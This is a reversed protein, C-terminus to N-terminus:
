YYWFWSATFSEQAEHNITRHNYKLNFANETDLSYTFFPEVTQIERQQSFWEDKGLLGFKLSSSPAYLLGLNASLSYDLDSKYYVTPTVTAYGFLTENGLTIGAGSEVYAYLKNKFIRKAGTSIQWSIPTFLQDQIAYSHIDILNFKKLILHNNDYELDTELFNIYAGPIFGNDNDYIDHYSFKTELHIKKNKEYGLTVRTSKHGKNPAIPEEVIQKKGKGLKSRHKLLKLFLPLYAKKSITGEQQKIKLLATALELAAIKKEKSLRSIASLNYDDSKAFALATPTQLIPNSLALITKHKSPRYTTNQVLNEDMIARITDLPIAKYNFQQTLNISPKAVELLWLLNYSCNEALFFYDSYFHRLEFIHLVMRELEKQSLKLKYEWIDRHELESYTQLKKYYPEITYRGNYGGFFGQYAYVFANEETTQAAYNIAYSLLPTNPNADLRLFTHGFASAPANMHASTFVLTASKANLKKLEAHLKQCSPKFIEDKLNPIHNLLWNSRSPYHCLTSNEDDSKDKKLTAITAILELYFNRKGNPSFFFKPDDIESM